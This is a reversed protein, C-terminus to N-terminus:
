WYIGDFQMGMDSNGSRASVKGIRLGKYGGHDQDISMPLAASQPNGLCEYVADILLSAPNLYSCIKKECEKDGVSKVLRAQSVFNLIGFADTRYTLLCINL